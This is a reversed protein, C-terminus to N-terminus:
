LFARGEGRYTKWVDVIHGNEVVQFEDVHESLEGAKAHRLWVQDGIRLDKAAKGKLPTQVEGAGENGVYKLGEPHVVTPSRDPGTPGSAIWGGGLLTAAKKSPRRVVALVFFAAPQPTFSTYRDFIHPAFVGSGAAIETVASEQATSDVSGTGGGNVFRVEALDHVGAVVRARREAIEARSSRQMARILRPRPGSGADGVGAIQAEYAMLGDLVFGPRDLVERVVGLVAGASHLPSRLAGAKVLGAAGRYGADLEVAVKITTRASSPTVGEILDLHVASDIMLTIDHAAGEDAALRRLAVRDATPYAVVIDRFGHDYLWLAEPLTYALLGAFGPRDLLRAILERVRISKTAVRIPKGAARRVLDDANHQWAPSSLVAFPPDLEAVATRLEPDIM